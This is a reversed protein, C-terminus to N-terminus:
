NKCHSTPVAVFGLTVAFLVGMIILSLYIRYKYHVRFSIVSLLFCFLHSSYNM